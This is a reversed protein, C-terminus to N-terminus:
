LRSRLAAHIRSDRTKVASKEELFYHVQWARARNTYKILEARLREPTIEDLRYSIVLLVHRTEPSVSFVPGRGAYMQFNAELLVRYVDVIREEPLAGFDCYAFVLDPNVRADYRLSCLVGNISIAEGRWLSEPQDLSWLICLDCVLSAFAAKGQDSNFSVPTSSPHQKLHM